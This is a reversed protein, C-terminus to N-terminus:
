EARSLLASNFYIHQVPTPAKNSLHMTDAATLGVAPWIPWIM